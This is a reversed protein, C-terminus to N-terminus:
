EQRDIFHQRLCETCLVRGGGLGVICHRVRSCARCLAFRSLLLSPRSSSYQEADRPDTAGHLAPPVSLPRRNAPPHAIHAHAPPLLPLPPSPEPLTRPSLLPTPPPPPPPPPPPHPPLPAPRPHVLAIPGGGLPPILPTIIPLPSPSTPPSAQGPAPDHRSLRFLRSLRRVRTWLKPQPSPTEQPSTEQPFIQQPSSQQSSQRFSDNQSSDRQPSAPQSLFPRSSLPYAPARLPRPPRPGLDTYGPQILSATPQIPTSWRQQTRPQRTPLREWMTLRRRDPQNSM